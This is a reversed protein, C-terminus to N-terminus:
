FEDDGERFADDDDDDDDDDEDDEVDFDDDEDEDELEEDDFDDDDDDALRVDAFAIANPESTTTEHYKSGLTESVDQVSKFESSTSVAVM